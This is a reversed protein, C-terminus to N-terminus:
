SPSWRPFSGPAAASFFRDQAATRSYASCWDAAHCSGPLAAQDTKLPHIAPPHMMEAGKEYVSLPSAIFFIFHPASSTQRSATIILMWTNLACLTMGSAPFVMRTSLPCPPFSSPAWRPSTFSSAILRAMAMSTRFCSISCPALTSIVRSSSRSRASSSLSFRFRSSMFFRTSNMSHPNQSM